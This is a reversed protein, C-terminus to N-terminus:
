KNLKAQADQVMQLHSRLTPLTKDILAKLDPDKVSSSGNEFLTIAEQHAQVQNDLYAKDWDTGTKKNMDDLQQQKDAPVADSLTLGKSTALKKVEDALKQHDALMHKADAKVDASKAHTQAAKHAAIEAANASSAQTVFDQDTMANATNMGAGSDMPAAAPATSTTTSTSDATSTNNNNNGCSALSAALVLTALKLLSNM